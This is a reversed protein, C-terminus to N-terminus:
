LWLLELDERWDLDGGSLRADSLDFRAVELVLTYVSRATGRLSRDDCGTILVVVLFLSTSMDLLSFRVGGETPDLRGLLLSLMGDAAPSDRGLDIRGRVDTSSLRLEVFIPAYAVFVGSVLCVFCVDLGADADEGVRTSIRAVVRETEGSFILRRGFLAKSRRAVRVDSGRGAESSRLGASCRFVDVLERASFLSGLGPASSRTISLIRSRLSLTV